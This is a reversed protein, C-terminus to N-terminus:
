VGCAFLHSFAGACAMRRGEVVAPDGLTNKPQPHLRTAEAGASAALRRHRASVPAGHGARRHGAFGVSWGSGTLGEVRCVDQTAENGGHIWLSEGPLEAGPAAAVATPGGARLAGGSAAPLGTSSGRPTRLGQRRSLGLHWQVGRWHRGRAPAAWAGRGGLRKQPRRGMGPIGRGARALDTAGAASVNGPVILPGVRTTYPWTLWSVTPRCRAASGWSIWWPAKRRRVRCRRSPKSSVSTRITAPATSCSWPVATVMDCKSSIPATNSPTKSTGWSRAALVTFAMGAMRRQNAASTQWFWLWAALTFCLGSDLSSEGSCRKLRGSRWGEGEGACRCNGDPRWGPLTGCGPFTRSWGSRWTRWTNSSAARRCCTREWADARWKPCVALCSRGRIARPALCIAEATQPRVPFKVCSWLTSRINISTIRLRFTSAHCCRNYSTMQFALLTSGSLVQWLCLHVMPGCGSAFCSWSGSAALSTQPSVPIMVGITSARPGSYIMDTTLRPQFIGQKRPTEIPFQHIFPPNDLVSHKVVPPYGIRYHDRCASRADPSKGWNKRNKNTLIEIRNIMDAM